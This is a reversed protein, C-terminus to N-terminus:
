RGRPILQASLWAAIDAAFTPHVGFLATGHAKQELIVVRSDPHAAADKLARAWEPSPPEGASAGSFVALAPTKRVHEIQSDTHPGSLAVVARTHEAHAAATRLAFWVGCSAGGFALPATVGVRSRLYAVMADADNGRQDGSGTGTTNGNTGRYTVILSSIGASRLREAVPMWGDTADPACMPFFLVGPSGRGADVFRAGLKSGDPTTIAVREGAPATQLLLLLLPIWM